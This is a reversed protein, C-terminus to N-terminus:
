LSFRWRNPYSSVKDMVEKPCMNRCSPNPLDFMTSALEQNYFGFYNTFQRPTAFTPGSYRVGDYPADVKAWYEHMDMYWHNVRFGHVEEEGIWTGGKLWDPPVAANKPFVDCCNKATILYVNDTILLTCNVDGWGYCFNFHDHREGHVVSDYRYYMVSETKRPKSDEDFSLIWNPAIFSKSWIPIKPDSTILFVFCLSFLFV